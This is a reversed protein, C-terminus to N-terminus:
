YMKLYVNHQFRLPLSFLFKSGNKSSNWLGFLPNNSQSSRLFSRSIHLRGSSYIEQAYGLPGDELLAANGGAGSYTGPPYVWGVFDGNTIIKDLILHGYEHVMTAKLLNASSFAIPDVYIDSSADGPTVAFNLKKTISSKQDYIFNANKLGFRKQFFNLANGANTSEAATGISSNYKGILSSARGDNTGLGFGDNYNKISEIGSTVAAFAAGWEAGNLAGSIVNEDNLAASLGGTIAGEAAGWGVMSLFSGAALQGITGGVTGVLAGRWFGDLFKGGKKDTKIGNLFGGIIAGVAIVFPVIKGDPDSNIVCNNGMASYPSAFQNGPDQNHWRGLQPDYFRAEFDYEDLGTGDYFETTQMEKGQYGYSNITRGYAHSNLAYMMLGQPYYSKEDILPSRVQQVQLNDFYIDQNSENSCYVYLYGSKPMVINNAVLSNIVDPTSSVPIFNTSNGIQVIKFQEDFLIWNFGAKPAGAPVSTGNNLWTGLPGTTTSNGNLVTGTVEGKTGGVVASTGTFANLFSLLATNFYNTNNVATANSHWFSKGFINVVDGAMVKLTIGLGTHDTGSTGGNAPLKYVKKSTNNPNITVGDAFGNNNQYNYNTLSSFWPIESFASADTVAQVINATNINYFQQETGIATASELTAAPYTDTKQEDTLTVRVNGLNDKIFYDAVFSFSPTFPSPRFRGEEHLAYQLAEPQNMSALAVNSYTKSQYVFGGVYNTTTTITVANYTVNNFVVTANTEKAIKQLKISAADYVYTITGGKNPVTIVSPLNMNNYSISGINKNIDSILNGNDDYNYDISTPTKVINSAYHFDGLKTAPVNSNDIM